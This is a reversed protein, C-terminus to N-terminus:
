VLGPIPYSLIAKDEDKKGSSRPRVVERSREDDSGLHFGSSQILAM